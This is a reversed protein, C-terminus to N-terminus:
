GISNTKIDKKRGSEDGFKHLKRGEEGRRDERFTARRRMSRQLGAFDM